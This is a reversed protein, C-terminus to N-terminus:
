EAAALKQIEALRSTLNALQADIEDATMRTKAVVAPPAKKAFGPANLRKQLGELDKQLKQSQKELRKREKEFDIMDRMPIIAELNDAIYLHLANDGTGTHSTSINQGEAVEISCRAPDVKTLLFLMGKEAEVDAATLADTRITIPIRRGHDVQYEARANRIYRVLAQMKEFRQIAEHDVAGGSPWEAIILAKEHSGERPFRHWIAETVFPMFPHLLRLCTDMVYVLTARTQEAAVADKAFFRTKSTEVYWDAFEDWLFEYIQRGADGFTLSELGSTVAEVLLHLKSLIYREPLPLNSISDGFNSVALTALQKREETSISNLNGLIFRSANWLKNAFNRNSEIKENSLPIDQGPTSGTVLTYRLADTGYSTIVDLPDIVNGVTKSMKRGYRDRVLGHLYVTHFPIEDTLWLSLMIMRAVWFFLIDYGTEMISGPFFTKLDMAENDPWGMTSFPWLGSSFWTDLVDTEQNLTVAEGSYKESAILRAENENIAVIYEDPYEDVYWVPIRHGWWLQRSVCWDRIDELWNFYVKEFRQPEITIEGERVKRVAKEALAQMKIFWQTSVLPEVVEGGRQSRPVRNVHEEVKIVLEDEGMAEWVKKRAEFRELGEFQGGNSNITADKNMINIIPLGHKKGLEYDNHDHGPTIKLAGTGFERDVYTDTIIPIERGLVPVKVTKGVYQSYRKDEPHVCVATDGLITEPRTTAVPIFGSGDTLPYQFYYLKGNEESFEVELDSVATRLKPSWNVMYSGKYILGQDHLRKFAEAVAASMHDELTFRSRDWDCSAGLRRMQVNIYNGKDEKWKWVRELFKDRGLEDRTIGDKALEKEVVLQTAIGAHDTGPLWLTPRGRMRHYRTLIDEVTAFMAHGMHLGGTVNPPPMCITFPDKGNPSCPKFLGASEWWQYLVQEFQQPEYRPPMERQPRLEQPLPPLPESQSPAYGPKSSPAASTQTIACLTHSYRSATTKRDIPIYFRFRYSRILPLPGARLFRPAWPTVFATNSLM